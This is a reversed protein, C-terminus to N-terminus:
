IYKERDTVISSVIVHIQYEYEDWDDEYRKIGSFEMPEDKELSFSNIFKIIDGLASENEVTVYMYGPINNLKSYPYEINVDFEYAIDSFREELSSQLKEEYEDIIDNAYYDLFVDEDEYDLNETDIDTLFKISYVPLEAAIMNNDELLTEEYSDAGYQTVGKIVCRGKENFENWAREYDDDTLDDAYVGYNKYLWDNLGIDAAELADDYTPYEGILKDGEYVVFYDYEEGPSLITENLSEDTDDFPSKEKMDYMKLESTNLVGDLAVFTGNPTDEIELVNLDKPISGPQVGHTTFYWYKRDEKPIVDSYRKIEEELSENVNNKQIVFMDKSFAHPYYIKVFDDGVEEIECYDKDAEAKDVLKSLWDKCEDYSGAFKVNTYDANDLDLGEPDYWKSTWVVWYPYEKAVEKFKNNRATLNSLTHLNDKVPISDLEIGESLKEEIKHNIVMYVHSDEDMGYDDWYKEPIDYVDILYEDGIDFNEDGFIIDGQYFGYKKEADRSNIRDNDIDHWINM